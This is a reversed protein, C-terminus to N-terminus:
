KTKWVIPKWNAQNADHADYDIYYVKNDEVTIDIDNKSRNKKNGRNVNKGFGGAYNHDVIASFTLNYTGPKLWVASSSQSVSKGNIGLLTVPFLSGTTKNPILILQGSPDKPNAFFNNKALCVFTMSFLIVSILIKKM